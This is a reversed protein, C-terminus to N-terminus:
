TASVMKLVQPVMCTYTGDSRFILYTEPLFPIDADYPIVEKLKWTGTIHHVDTLTCDCKSTNFGFHQAIHVCNVPYLCTAHNGPIECMKLLSDKSCVYNWHERNLLNSDSLRDKALLLVVECNIPFLVLKYSRLYKLHLQFKTFYDDVVEENMSLIERNFSLFPSVKNELSQVPSLDNLNLPDILVLKSVSEGERLLIDVISHAIWAGFSFGGLYYPGERQELKIFGLFYAAIDQISSKEQSLVSIPVYVGYVQYESSLLTALPVFSFRKSDVAHCIFIKKSSASGDTALLPQIPDKISNLLGNNLLGGTEKTREIIYKVVKGVKPPESDYSKLIELIDVHYRLLVTEYLATKIMSDIPLFLDPGSSDCYSSLCNSIDEEKSGSPLDRSVPSVVGYKCYQTDYQYTPLKIHRSTSFVLLKHMQIDIGAEWLSCLSSIFKKEDFKLCVPTWSNFQPNFLAPKLGIEVVSVSEGMARIVKEITDPYDVPTYLQNSFYQLDFNDGQSYCKVKGKISTLLFKTVSRSKFSHLVREFKERISLMDQHHYAHGMSNLLKARVNDRKVKSYLEMIDVPNGACVCSRPSNICALQVSPGVSYTSKIKEFPMNISVMKGSSVYEEILLARQFVINLVEIETLAGAICASSYEGLSHGFAGNVELGLDKLSYYLALQFMVTLVPQLFKPLDPKPAIDHKCLFNCLTTPFFNPFANMLANCYDNLYKHFTPLVDCFYKFDQLEVIEGQGSFAAIVQTQKSVSHVCKNNSLWDILEPMSTVGQSLRMVCYRKSRALTYLVNALQLERNNELYSLLSSIYSKVAKDSNASIVCPLCRTADGKADHIQDHRVCNEELIIAANTGLAGISHVLATRCGSANIWPQPKTLIKFLGKSVLAIPSSCNISPPLIKQQIALSAKIIAPGAAAVGLHGFNGKVSGLIKERRSNRFVKNLSDMEVRDGVETGTGHAEVLEIRDPHTSSTALANKLNESQGKTSPYLQKSSFTGDSGISTGKVYCVINESELESDDASLRKLVIVTIGDSMVTGSASESFPCCHGDKSYIDNDSTVYGTEQGYLSAGVVVAIDCDKNLLSLRAYHMAVAVSSCNNSLTVCPGRFNFYRGLILAANDRLNEFVFEDRKEPYLLVCDLLYRPFRIAAFCGITTDSAVKVPDIGTEEMTSYVSQLLLRQQPDMMDAKEKPFGFLDNDFYYMDKVLGRSGVYKGVTGTLIPLNHSIAEKGNIVIDWFENCTSAEPLRVGMGIIAILAHSDTNHISQSPPVTPLADSLNIHCALSSLNQAVLISNMSVEVGKDNLMQHLQAKNLSTM